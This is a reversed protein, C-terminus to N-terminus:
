ASECRMAEATAVKESVRAVPESGVM